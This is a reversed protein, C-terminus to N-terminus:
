FIINDKLVPWIQTDANIGYFFIFLFLVFGVSLIIYELFLRKNSRNILIANVYIIYNLVLINRYIRIFNFNYVMLPIIFFMMINIKYILDLFKEYVEKNKFLVEAKDINRFCENYMIKFVGYFLLFVAVVVIMGDTTRRTFYDLIRVESTFIRIISPYIDTYALITLICSTYIAIIKFKKINFYKLFLFTLYIISVKHIFSAAIIGILYKIGGRKSDDILYRFVFIVISISLFNRIQIADNIFPYILYLMLIYNKFKVYRNLTNIILLYGVISIILRFQNYTMGLLNSIYMLWKFGIDINRSSIGVVSDQYLTYYNEFDMNYYFSNNLHHNNLGMIICLFTIIALTYLKSKKQIFGWIILIAFLLYQM